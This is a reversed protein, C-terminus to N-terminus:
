WLKTSANRDRKTPSVYFQHIVTHNSHLDISRGKTDDRECGLAVAVSGTRENANQREYLLSDGEVFSRSFSRSKNPTVPRASSDTSNGLLHSVSSNNGLTEKAIFNATRPRVRAASQSRGQAASAADVNFSVGSSQRVSSDDSSHILTSVQSAGFVDGFQNRDLDTSRSVASFSLRPTPKVASPTGTLAMSVDCNNLDRGLAGKCLNASSPRSQRTESGLLEAVSLVHGNRSNASRAKMLDDVHPNEVIRKTNNAQANLKNMREIQFKENTDISSDVGGPMDLSFNTKRWFEVDNALRSTKCDYSRRSEESATKLLTLFEWLDIQNRGAAAATISSPSKDTSLLRYLSQILPLDLNPDIRRIMVVFEEESVYRNKLILRSMENGSQANVKVKRGLLTCVFKEPSRTYLIKFNEIMRDLGARLKPEVQIKSQSDNLDKLISMSLRTDKAMERQFAKTTYNNLKSPGESVNRYVMDPAEPAGHAPPPKQKILSASKQAVSFIKEIGLNQQLRQILDEDLEIGLSMLDFKAGRKEPSRAVTSRDMFSEKSLNSKNRSKMKAVVTLSAM